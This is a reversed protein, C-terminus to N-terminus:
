SIKSSVKQGCSSCFLAGEELETGCNTCHNPEEAPPEKEEPAVPTEVATGCESCFGATLALETGCNPCVKIGKIRQVELQLKTIVEQTAKIEACLEELPQEAKDGLTEFYLKGLKSYLGEIKRQEDTIQSNLKSSEALEKTAKVASQTTGVVKKKFDNFLAM